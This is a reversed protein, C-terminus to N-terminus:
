IIKQVSVKGAFGFNENMGKLLNLGPRKGKELTGLEKEFGLVEAGNITAWAILTEFPIQPFHKSITIMEDLISLSRNSAYSDTGICLKMGENLLMPIDPLRNEIYLNANPCLSLAIDLEAGKGYFRILDVDEKSTFTNHVLLIKKAEIMRGLVFLLSGRDRRKADVDVGAKQMLEALPGTGTRFLENESATELSHISLLPQQLKDILEMLKGSVTYPAHPVVSHALSGLKDSLAKSELLKEEAKEATLDFVELFTHYAIKSKKKQEFSHETNSIDGVGVIGNRIMEEEAQVLATKIEEPSYKSRQPLLESFFGALGKGESIKGKLYSLELHCHANVFGPVIVGPFFEADSSRLGSGPFVVEAITGNDELIIVGNKVPPSSVPFIYDASIKRM